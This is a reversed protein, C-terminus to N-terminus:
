FHPCMTICKKKQKLAFTKVLCVTPNYSATVSGHTTKMSAPIRLWIITKPVNERVHNLKNKCTGGVHGFMNLLFVSM